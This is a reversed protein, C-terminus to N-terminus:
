NHRADAQAIIDHLRSQVDAPIPAPEHHDLIHIVKERVRDAM